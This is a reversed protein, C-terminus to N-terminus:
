TIARVPNGCEICRYGALNERAFWLWFIAWLGFTCLTLCFHGAHNTATGSALVNNECCPCYRSAHKLGM